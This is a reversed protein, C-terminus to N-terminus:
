AAISLFLTPPKVWRRYAPVVADIVQPKVAFVVADPALGAPLDDATRHWSVLAADTLAAPAGEPEVVLFRTAAGRALWGRLMASGMQGCGVLLITGPKPRDAAPANM